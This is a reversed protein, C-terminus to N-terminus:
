NKILVVSDLWAGDRVWHVTYHGPALAAINLDVPAIFASPDLEKELVTQGQLNIVVLKSHLTHFHPSLDFNLHVMDDAPNPYISMTNQLGVVVEQVDVFQCGPELCGLSDVRFIWPTHLNPNPNDSGQIIKGVCVVGGDDMVKSDFVMHTANDFDINEEYYAYRRCWLSDRNEDLKLIFGDFVSGFENDEFASSGVMLFQDNDLRHINSVAGFIGPVYQKLETTTALENNPLQEMLTSYFFGTMPFPNPEEVTLRGFIIIKDEEYEYFYASGDNCSGGIEYRGEEFGNGDTKIVVLDTNPTFDDGCLSNLVRNSVLWYGGDIARYVGGSAISFTEPYTRRWIRNGVSDLKLLMADPETQNIIGLSDQLYGHALYTHDVPDEVMGLFFHSDASSDVLYADTIEGQIDMNVLYSSTYLGLEDGVVYNTTISVIKGHSNKFIGGFDGGAFNYWQEAIDEGDQDYRRWWVIEGNINCKASYKRTYNDVSDPHCLVGNGFVLYGDYYDPVTDIVIVNGFHGHATYNYSPSQISVPHAENFLPWQAFSVVSILLAFLILFKSKSM